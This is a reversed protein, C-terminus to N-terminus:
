EDKDEPPLPANALVEIGQALIEAEANAKIDDETEDVAEANTYHTNTYEQFTSLISTANQFLTREDLSSFIPCQMIYAVANSYVDYLSQENETKDEKNHLEFITNLMVCIRQMRLSVHTSMGGKCEWVYGDRVKYLVNAGFDLKDTVDKLPVDILKDMQYLGKLQSLMDKAWKADKSNSIIQNTLTKISDETTKREEEAM